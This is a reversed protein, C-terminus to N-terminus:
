PRLGARVETCQHWIRLMFHPCKLLKTRKSRKAYKKESCTIFHLM